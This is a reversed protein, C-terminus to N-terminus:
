FSVLEYFQTGFYLKRLITQWEISEDELREIYTFYIHFKYIFLDLNFKHPRSKYIYLHVM